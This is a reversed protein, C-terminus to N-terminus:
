NTPRKLIDMDKLLKDHQDDTLNDHHAAMLVPEEEMQQIALLNQAYKNLKSINVDNLQRMTDLDLLKLITDQNDLLDSDDITINGDLQNFLVDFDINLGKAAQRICAISPEIPKGTKPHKNKELLSIYAKSIGSKEAFADMSINNVARYKHIIEGLHMHDGGKYLM